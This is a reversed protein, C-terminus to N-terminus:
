NKPPLKSLILTRGRTDLVHSNTAKAIEDALAKINKGSLASKLVKIKITKYKKLLKVVHAIFDDTIGKKGLNCHPPSLLARKFQEEYDM